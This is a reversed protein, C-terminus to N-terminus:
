CTAPTGTEELLRPLYLKVSTGKGLTSDVRVHGEAQKVFGYVMGLGLGTGGTGKTTFFPEFMRRVVEPGMGSGTDSVSLMVYPGPTLEIERESFSADLITNATEITLTGGKSMADRANIALNLLANELQNADARVPWIDDSLTPVITISGGLTSRLLELMDTVVINLDLTLASAEQDRSFALLRRTLAAAREAGRIARDVAKTVPPGLTTLRQEVSELSGIVVTMLNNFDHAIGGTLHGVAEMKQAQRLAHEADNRESLTQVIGAALTANTRRLELQTMVQRALTRLVALQVESLQRPRYDLVCLTGLPHRDPTELLAGAYFRLHPDGTVLPNGSFRADALTDYVVFLGPQLIAHACISVDLPTERVGLGIESKFWQRGADVFNIVAIPTECVRAILDTIEDFEPEPPTDLIGYRRLAELRATQNSPVPPLL